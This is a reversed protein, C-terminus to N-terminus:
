KHSCKCLDSRIFAIINNIDQDSLAGGWPPMSPSKGVSAGGEKIVKFLTADSRTSMYSADTLNRPKPNLAAAAVGDGKGEPGHCSSCMTAYTAKGQAADGAARAISAVGLTITIAILVTFFTGLDRAM